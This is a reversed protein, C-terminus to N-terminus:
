TCCADDTRKHDNGNSAAPPRSVPSPAAKESSPATAKSTSRERSPLAATYLTNRGPLSRASIQTCWKSVLRWCSRTASPDVGLHPGPPVLMTYLLHRLATSIWTSAARAWRCRVGASDMTSRSDRVGAERVIGAVPVRHEDTCISYAMSAVGSQSHLRSPNLSFGLFITMSRERVWMQCGCNDGLPLHSAKTGERNARPSERVDGDRSHLASRYHRPGWCYRRQRAGVFRPPCRVPPGQVKQCAAVAEVVERANPEIGISADGHALREVHRM